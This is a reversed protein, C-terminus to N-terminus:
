GGRALRRCTGIRAPSFTFHRQLAHDEVEIAHDGIALRQVKPDVLREEGLFAQCKRRALIVLSVEADVVDAYEFRERAVFPEVDGTVPHCPQESALGLDEQSQRAVALHQKVAGGLAHRRDGGGHRDCDRRTRQTM